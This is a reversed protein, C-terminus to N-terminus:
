GPMNLRDCVRQTALQFAEFHLGVENAVTQMGEWFEAPKIPTSEPALLLADVAAGITLLKRVM